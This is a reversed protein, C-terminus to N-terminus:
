LPLSNKAAPDPQNILKNKVAQIIGLKATLDLLSKFELM